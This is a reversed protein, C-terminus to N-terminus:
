STIRSTECIHPLIAMRRRTWPLFPFELRRRQRDVTRQPRRWRRKTDTYGEHLNDSAWRVLWEKVDM